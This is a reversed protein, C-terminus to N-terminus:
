RKDWDQPDEDRWISKSQQDEESRALEVCTEHARSGGADGNGEQDLRFSWARATGNAIMVVAQNLTGQEEFTKELKMRRIESRM